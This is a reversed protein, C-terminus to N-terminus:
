FRLDLCITLLETTRRLLLRAFQQTAGLTSSQSYAATLQTPLL